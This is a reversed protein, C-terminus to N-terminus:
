DEVMEERVVAFERKSLEATHQARRAASNPAIISKREASRLVAAAAGCDM